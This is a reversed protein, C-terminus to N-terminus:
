EKKKPTQARRRKERRLRELRGWAARRAREARRRDATPDTTLDKAVRHDNLAADIQAALMEDSLRAFPSARRTKNHTPM